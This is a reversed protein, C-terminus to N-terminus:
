KDLIENVLRVATDTIPLQKIEAKIKRLPIGNALMYVTDDHSLWWNHMPSRTAKWEKAFKFSEEDVEVVVKIKSM